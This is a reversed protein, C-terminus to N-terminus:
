FFCFGRLPFFAHGTAIVRCAKNTNGNLSNFIQMLTMEAVKGGATQLVKAAHVNCTGSNKGYMGVFKSCDEM